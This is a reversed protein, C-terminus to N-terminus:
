GRIARDRYYNVGMADFRGVLHSLRRTFDAFTRDAQPTWGIEAVASMRPWILREAGAPTDFGESWVNAQVGLVHRAEDQTMEAILPDFGYCNELSSVGLRGPEDQGEYHKYDLYLHTHPSMVVDHGARAAQLGGEVGRWSMVTAGPALGGELIEDWGVLRRGRDALYRDFQRITWSQLADEDALGEQRIRAQCKPCAKWRAKPCEDGGVHIFPSPFIDLVEDFVDRLFALVDDNGVCFVDDFVGWETTVEFSGGTCSFQPYASLAALAHGPLEIEPMVTIGRALGYAVVDLAEARSYSGGYRGGAGDDRWAGVRTLEPYRGIQLRWGQDETLHWHFVNQKHLALLDIYRKVFDVDFFHRAVDLHGGRWGFRPRDEIHVVPVVWDVGPAPRDAELAAPLLQRLTQAGWQLGAAAAAAITVGQETCTLEYGEDGLAAARSADLVFRITGGGVQVPVAWGTASRLMHAMLMAAAQGPDPAGVSTGADLRLVGSGPEVRVPRPIIHIDSM